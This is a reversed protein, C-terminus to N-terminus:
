FLNSRHQTLIELEFMQYAVLIYTSLLHLNTLLHLHVFIFGNLYSSSYILRVSNIIAIGAIIIPTVTRENGPLIALAVKYLSPHSTINIDPTINVTIAIKAVFNATKNGPCDKRD